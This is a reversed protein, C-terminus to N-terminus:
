FFKPIITKDGGDKNFLQIVFGSRGRQFNTTVWESAPALSPYNMYDFRDSTCMDFLCQHSDGKSFEINGRIDNEIIYNVIKSVDLPKLAPKFGVKMNEKDKGHSIIFTHNGVTYHNIFKKHNTIQVADGYKADLILKVASNVVYDYSSSHNSNCINNIIIKSFIGRAMIRDVLEVKLKVGQDFAEENTMNQPLDHERRVTKGDWGDMYDGLDDIILIDGDKGYMCTDVFMQNFRQIQDSKEWSGGYLAIGTKDPHMGIHTDTYVLRVVGGSPEPIVIDRVRTPTVMYQEMISVLYDETIFNAEEKVEHFAINYYPTGTHTVLKYSRVDERPLEYHECYENIDMVFGDENLASMVEQNNYQNTETDTDTEINFEGSRYRMLVDVEDPKLRYRNASDAGKKRQQM